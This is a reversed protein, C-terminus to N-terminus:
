LNKWQKRLSVLNCSLGRARIRREKDEGPAMDLWVSGAPPYFRPIYKDEVFDLITVPEKYSHEPIVYQGYTTNEPLFQLRMALGTEQYFEEAFDELMEESARDPAVWLLSKMRPSLEWLIQRICAAEGLVVFHDGVSEQVLREVWKLEMFEQFEPVPLITRVWNLEPVSADYYLFNDYRAHLLASVEQQLAEAVKQRAFEQQRRCKRSRLRGMLNLGSLHFRRTAPKYPVGEQETICIKLVRYDDLLHERIQCSCQPKNGATETSNRKVYCLYIITDM